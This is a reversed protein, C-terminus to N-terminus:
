SLWLLNRIFGDQILPLFFSPSGLSPPRFCFTWPQGTPMFYKWTVWLFGIHNSCLPYSVFSSIHISALDCSAMPATQLVVLIHWHSLSTTIAKGMEMGIRPSLTHSIGGYVRTNVRLPVKQFTVSGKSSPTFTHWQLHTKLNKHSSGLEQEKEVEQSHICHPWSGWAGIEVKGVM